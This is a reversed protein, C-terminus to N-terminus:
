YGGEFQRRVQRLAFPFLVRRSYVGYKIIIIIRIVILPHPSLDMRARMDALARTRISLHSSCLLLSREVSRKLQLNKVIGRLMGVSRSGPYMSNILLSNSIGRVISDLCKWKARWQKSQGGRARKRQGCGSNQCKVTYMIFAARSYVSRRELSSILLLWSTWEFLYPIYITYIYIYIMYIHTKYWM